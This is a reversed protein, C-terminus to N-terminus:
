RAERLSNVRPFCSRQCFSGWLEPDNELVKDHYLSVPPLDQLAEMEAATRLMHTEFDVLTDRDTGNLLETALPADRNPAPLSVRGPKYNALSGVGDDSSSDYGAKTRLLLSLAEDTTCFHSDSVREHALESLRSRLEGADGADQIGTSPRWKGTNLWDLSQVCEEVM